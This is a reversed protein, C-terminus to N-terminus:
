TNQIFDIIKGNEDEAITKDSSHYTNLIICPEKHGFFSITSEEVQELSAVNGTPNMSNSIYIDVNDPFKEIIELLRKKNM